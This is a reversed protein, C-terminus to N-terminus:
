RPSTSTTFRYCSPPWAGSRSWPSSLPRGGHNPGGGITGGPRPRLRSRSLVPQPRCLLHELRRVAAHWTPAYHSARRRVAPLQVAGILATIVVVVILTGDPSWIGAALMAEATLFNIVVTAACAAFIRAPRDLGRLLRAVGITPVAALFLLVLPARLPTDADALALAVGTMGAAIVAGALLRWATVSGPRMQEGGPSKRAVEGILLHYTSKLYLKLM